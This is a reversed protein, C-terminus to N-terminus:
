PRWHRTDGRAVAWSQRYLAGGADFANARTADSLAREYAARAMEVMGSKHTLPLAVKIALAGVMVETFLPHWDGPDAVDAIFRIIRPSEQDSYILGGMQRWSIPIGDAEGNHTLPLIRLADAPVPYTWNLTGEGSGTDTGAVSDVDLAFTWIHKALEARRTQVFHRNMLRAATSNDSLATIPVEDLVALAMNAIDVEAM